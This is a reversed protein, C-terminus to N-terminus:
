RPIGEKKLLNRLGSEPAAAKTPKLIGLQRKRIGFLTKEIDRLEAIEDELVSLEALEEVPTEGKTRERDSRAKLVIGLTRDIESLGSQGRRLLRARAAEKQEEPTLKELLIQTDTMKTPRGLQQTGTGSLGSLAYLAALRGASEVGAGTPLASAFGGFFAELPSAQGIAEPTIFGRTQTPIASRAGRQASLLTLPDIAM